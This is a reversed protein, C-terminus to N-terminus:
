IERRGLSVLKEAMAAIQNLAQTRESAGQAQHESVVALQNVAEILNATSEQIRALDEDIGKASEKTNDAMKRVEEAVVAFGRGSEGARAAEISANIGLINSQQSIKKIVSTINTISKLEEQVNVTELEMNKATAALEETEASHNEAGAYLEEIASLIEEGATLLTEYRETSLIVTIVGKFEEEDLIPTSIAAYPIGFQSQEKSVHGAQRQKSQIARYSISNQYMETPQGPQIGFDLQPHPYSALVRKEDMIVVSIDDDYLDQLHSAMDLASGLKM